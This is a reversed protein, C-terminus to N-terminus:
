LRFSFIMKVEFTAFYYSMKLGLNFSNVDNGGLWRGGERGGELFFTITIFSLVDYSRQPTLVIITKFFPSSGEDLAHFFCLIIFISVVHGITVIVM